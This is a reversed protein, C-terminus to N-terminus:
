TGLSKTVKLPKRWPHDATPKPPTPPRIAPPVPSAPALKRPQLRRSLVFPKAPVSKGDIFFQLAGDLHERIEVRKDAYSRMSPGALLQYVHQEGPGSAWSVTNDKRVVRQHKFCLSTGLDLSAPLARFGTGETAPLVAFRANFRPIFSALFANAQELSTVSALRMESILRSQLTGWLREVRGKAQPSHATLIEVGLEEMARGFQTPERKGTLQEAITEQHTSRFVAHKDSYLALPLGHARVLDELLLFYGLTSESPHFRAALLKGTADDVAGLLVLQEGRGQFWDHHSGDLQVLMGAQPYRERRSRHRPRRRRGSTLGADQLIRQLSSRSILIQEREQILEVLHCTNVGAYTTRALQLIRERLESDLRRQSPRGRNGHALGAPGEARLAALLRQTQRESLSLLEAAQGVAVKGQLVQTLVRARREERKSLTLGERM